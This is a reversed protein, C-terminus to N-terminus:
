CEHAAHLTGEATKSPRRYQSYNGRPRLNCTSAEHGFIRCGQCRLTRQTGRRDMFPQAARAYTDAEHFATHLRAPLKQIPISPDFKIVIQMRFARPIIRGLDMFQKNPERHLQSARMWSVLIDFAIQTHADGRHWYDYAGRIELLIGLIGGNWSRPVWTTVVFQLFDLDVENSVSVEESDPSRPPSNESHPFHPRELNALSTHTDVRRREGTFIPQSITSAPVGGAM